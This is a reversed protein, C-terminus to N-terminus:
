GGAGPDANARITLDFSAVRGLHCDAGFHGQSQTRRAGAQGLRREHDGYKVLSLQASVNIRGGGFRWDSPPLNSTGAKAPVMCRLWPPVRIFGRRVKGKDM